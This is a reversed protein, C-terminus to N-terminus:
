VLKLALSCAITQCDWTYLSSSIAVSLTLIAAYGAQQIVILTFTNLIVPGFPSPNINYHANVPLVSDIRDSSCPPRPANCCQCSADLDSCLSLIERGLFFQHGWAGIKRGLSRIAKFKNDALSLYISFLLKVSRETGESQIDSCVETQTNEQPKMQAPSNHLCDSYWIWIWDWQKDVWLMVHRSFQIKSSYLRLVFTFPVFTNKFTKSYSISIWIFYLRNRTCWFMPSVHLLKFSWMTQRQQQITTQGDHTRM